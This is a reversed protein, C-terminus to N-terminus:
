KWGLLLNLLRHECKENMFFDAKSLMRNRNEELVEYTGSCNPARRIYINKHGQGFILLNILYVVSNTLHFFSVLKQYFTSLFKKALLGRVHSHPTAGPQQCLPGHCATTATKLAAPPLVHGPFGLEGASAAPTSVQTVHYGSCKFVSGVQRGCFILNLLSIRNLLLRLAWSLRGASPCCTGTRWSLSLCVSLVAPVSLELDERGEGVSPM